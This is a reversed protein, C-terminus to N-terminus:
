IGMEQRDRRVEGRAAYVQQIRFAACTAGDVGACMADLLTCARDVTLESASAAADDGGNRAARASASAISVIALCASASAVAQPKPLLMIADLLTAPPIAADAVTYAPDSLYVGFFGKRGGTTALADQLGPASHGAQLQDCLLTWGECRALQPDPLTSSAVGGAAGRAAAVPPGRSSVTSAPILAASASCAICALALSLGRM